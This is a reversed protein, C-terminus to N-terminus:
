IATNDYLTRHYSIETMDHLDLAKVHGTLIEGVGAVTSSEESRTDPHTKDRRKEHHKHEGVAQVHDHLKAGHVTKIVGLTRGDRHRLRISPHWWHKPFILRRDNHTIIMGQTFPMQNWFYVKKRKNAEFM